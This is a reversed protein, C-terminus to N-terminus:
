EEESMQGAEVKDLLGLLHDSGALLAAVLGPSLALENNRVRDLVNEMSHTFREIAKIEVVGAGGKVTHAARFIANSLEPDREGQDLRMLGAELEGLQDRAESVFVLIIEDM